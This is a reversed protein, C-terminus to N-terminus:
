RASKVFTTRLNHGLILNLNLQKETSIKVRISNLQKVETQRGAIYNSDKKMRLDKLM